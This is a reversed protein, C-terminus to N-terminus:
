DGSFLAETAPVAESRGFADPMLRRADHRTTRLRWWGLQYRFLSASSHLPPWGDTTARRCVRKSLDRDWGLWVFPPEDSGPVLQRDVEPLRDGVPVAFL